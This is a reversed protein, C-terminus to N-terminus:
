MMRSIEIELHFTMDHSNTFPRKNFKEYLLPDTSICIFLRSDEYRLISTNRGSIETALHRRDTNVALVPSFRDLGL